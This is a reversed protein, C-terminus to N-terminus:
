FEGRNEGRPECENGSEVTYRILDVTEDLSIPQASHESALARGIVAARPEGIMEQAWRSAVSKSVVTGYKLTYLMRCMTLVAYTRYGQSDLKLGPNNLVRAWWGTLVDLVAQRLEKPSIPNILTHLAPGALVIGHERLIHRQIIQNSDHQEVVLHGYREILPYRAQNPNYRRISHQPIYCGELEIGWKSQGAAIREHMQQLATVADGPIEDATVVLFDIDSRLPDFDGTALSGGLYMGIFHNGLIRQVGMLLKHLVANVDPYQTPHRFIAHNSNFM